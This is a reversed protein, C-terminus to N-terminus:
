YNNWETQGANHKPALVAVLPGGVGLEGEARVVGGISVGHGPTTEVAVVQWTLTDGAGSVSSTNYMSHASQLPIIVLNTM